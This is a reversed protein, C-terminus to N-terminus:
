MASYFTPHTAHLLATHKDSPPPPRHSRRQDAKNHPLPLTQWKLRYHQLMHEYTQSMAHDGSPSPLISSPFARYIHAHATAHAVKNEELSEYGPTCLISLDPANPNSQLICLALAAIHSTAHHHRAAEFDTVIAPFDRATTATLAIVSGKEQTHFVSLINSPLKM